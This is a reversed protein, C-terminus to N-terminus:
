QVDSEILAALRPDDAVAQSTCVVTLGVMARTIAIHMRKEYQSISGRSVETLIVFPRDLGKFRLFTDAVMSKPAEQDDARVLRHGGGIGEQLLVSKQQGALTLVAIDEPDIRQVVLASVEDRVTQLLEKKPASSSM